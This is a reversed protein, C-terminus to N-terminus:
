AGEKYNDPFKESDLNAIKFKEMIKEFNKNGRVNKVLKQYNEIENPAFKNRTIIKELFQQLACNQDESITKIDM